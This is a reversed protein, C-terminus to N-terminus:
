EMTVETLSGKFRELYGTEWLQEPSWLGSALSPGILMKKMPIQPDNQIATVLAAFENSYGTPGYPEACHGHSLYCDPENGCQLGILHDRLIAQGKEAFILRWNTDNFPVGTHISSTQSHKFPKFHVPNKADSKEKAIAHGAGINPVYYAFDQTNTNGGM